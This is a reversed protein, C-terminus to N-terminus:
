NLRIKIEWSPESDKMVKLSSEILNNQNIKFIKVEKDPTSSLRVMQHRFWVYRVM